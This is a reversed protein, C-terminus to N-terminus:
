CEFHTESMTAPVTLVLDGNSDLIELLLQNNYLLDSLESNNESYFNFYVIFDSNNKATIGIFDGKINYLYEASTSKTCKKANLCCIDKSEAYNDYNYFMNKSM